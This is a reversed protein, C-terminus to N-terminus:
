WRNISNILHNVLYLMASVRVLHDGNKILLLAIKITHTYWWSKQDVSIQFYTDFDLHPYDKRLEAVPRGTDSATYVQETTLPQVVIKVGQLYEVEKKEDDGDDFSSNNHGGNTRNDENNWYM